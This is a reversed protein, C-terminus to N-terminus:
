TRAASRGLARRLRALGFPVGATLALVITAPEPTASANHVTVGGPGSVFDTSGYSQGTIGQIHAAAYYATDASGDYSPHNFSTASFGADTTDTILFSVSTGNQLAHNSAGFSLAIDFKGAAVSKEANASTDITATTGTQQTFSLNGPQLVTGNNPGFNFDLGPQGNGQTSGGIFEGAALNSTITLLVGTFNNHADYQDAFTATLYGLTSKDGPQGAAATDINMTVVNGATAPRTGLGAVALLGAAVTLM